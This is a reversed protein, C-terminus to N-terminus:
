APKEKSRSPGGRKQFILERSGEKFPKCSGQPGGVMSGGTNIAGRKLHPASRDNRVLSEVRPLRKRDKKDGRLDDGKGRGRQVTGAKGKGSKLEPAPVRTKKGKVMGDGGYKGKGGGESQLGGAGEKQRGDAQSGKGGTHYQTTKSNKVRSLNYEGAIKGARGRSTKMEGKGVM